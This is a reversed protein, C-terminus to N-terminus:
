KEIWTMSLWIAERDEAEEMNLKKGKVEDGLSQCWLSPGAM